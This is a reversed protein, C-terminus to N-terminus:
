RSTRGRGRGGGRGRPEKILWYALVGSVLWLFPATPVSASTPGSFGSVLMSLIPAALAALCLRLRAESFRRIRSASLWALRCLFAVYIVLGVIGTEVVLFNWETESNYKAAGADGAVQAAPGSTGVGVGLPHSVMLSGLLGVSASRENSFTSSFNNPTISQARQTTANNPGLQVFALYVLAIGVATGVIAKLANKSVAALLAFTLLSVFSVIIAARSGSTAVALAIGVSMLAVFWRTRSGATMMLAAAGPLALSATAAGSGADSGLGFPRVATGGSLFAVRGAGTFIGTGNIREAYGPGWSALQAPSLRSQIYSVVGGVAACFVILLLANRIQSEKRLFAYGLFFLPVFELHQRVGALGATLGRSGPNALEILVVGCFALVFGALPPLVFTRHARTSRLLAGAAVAVVLVDRALTVTSSGTRLKLYGDLLGLYLTLVALSHQVPRHAFCWIVLLVFGAAGISALGPGVLQGSALAITLVVCGAAGAVAAAALSADGDRLPRLRGVHLEPRYMARVLRAGRTAVDGGSTEPRAVLVLYAEGEQEARNSFTAVRATRM